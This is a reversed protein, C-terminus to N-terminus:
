PANQPVMVNMHQELDHLVSPDANENLSLSASTHQLFFHAQGCKFNQLEPLQELIESTVLHFGRNRSKLIIQKQLWSM